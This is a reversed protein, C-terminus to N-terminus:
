NGDVSGMEELTETLVILQEKDKMFFVGKLQLDALTCM